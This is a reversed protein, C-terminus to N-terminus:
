LLGEKLAGFVKKIMSSAYALPNKRIKTEEEAIKMFLGDLARNTAYTSLDVEVPPMPAKKGAVRAAANAVSGASNYGNALTEWSKKASINLVLPKGLATDVKPRYLEFLRPRTKAELYDTAARDGGKVIALGDAITMSTIANVFIPVVEKAAEEASRNLRLVVDDVLKQGQPIKSLADLIPQAEPPLLIKLAANAFYGDKKSLQASASRAGESLADRLAVIAEENTIRQPRGATGAAMELLTECSTVTFGAVTVFLIVWFKRMGVERPSLM